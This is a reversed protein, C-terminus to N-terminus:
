GSGIRFTALRPGPVIVAAFDALGPSRTVTSAASNIGLVLAVTWRFPTRTPLVVTWASPVIRFTIRIGSFDRYYVMAVHRGRETTFFVEGHEGLGLVSM